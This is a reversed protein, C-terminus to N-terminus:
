ISMPLSVNKNRERQGERQGEQAMTAVFKNDLATKHSREAFVPMTSVKNTRRTASREGAAVHRILLARVAVVCAKLVRFLISLNQTKM